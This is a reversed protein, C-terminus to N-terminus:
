DGFLHYIPYCTCTMAFGMPQLGAFLMFLMFLMRLLGALRLMRIYSLFAITGLKLHSILASLRQKASQCATIQSLVGNKIPKRVSLGRNALFVKFHRYSSPCLPRVTRFCRYFSSFRLIFNRYASLFSRQIFLLAEPVIPTCRTL